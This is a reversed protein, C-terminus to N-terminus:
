PSHATLLRIPPSTGTLSGGTIALTDNATTTLSQILLSDPSQVTITAATAGTDITVLDNEQNVGTGATTKGPYANPHVRQPM